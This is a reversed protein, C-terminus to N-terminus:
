RRKDEMCIFRKYSVQESSLSMSPHSVLLTYVDIYQLTFLHQVYMSSASGFYIDTLITATEEDPLLDLIDRRADNQVMTGYPFANSLTM